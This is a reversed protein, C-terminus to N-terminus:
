EFSSEVKGLKYFTAGVFIGGKKSTDLGATTKKRPLQLMKM